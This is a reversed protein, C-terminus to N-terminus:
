SFICKSQLSKKTSPFPPTITSKKWYRFSTTSRRRKTLRSEQFVWSTQKVKKWWRWACCWTRNTLGLAAGNCGRNTNTTLSWWWERVNACKACHRSVFEFAPFAPQKALSGWTLFLGTANFAKKGTTGNEKGFALFSLFMTIRLISFLLFVNLSKEHNFSVHEHLALFGCFFFFVLLHWILLVGSQMDM